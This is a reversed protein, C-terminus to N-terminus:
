QDILEVKLKGIKPALFNYFITLLAANVFGGVLASVVNSILSLISAGSIVLIISLILSLIGSVIACVIAFNMMDISDVVTFGNEESLELKIGRGKKGLLNYIYTGILIFVFTIVFVGFIMMIITMPQSIIMLVQYLQFALMDQGIFMLTQITTNLILPFILVLSLYTIIVQITAICALVTATEHTSIKVIKENELEFKMTKLKKTLLNYFLGGSFHKYIGIIFTAFLITSTVYLAVSMNSPSVLGIVITVALATILAFILEIGTTIITYSTLEISKLEKLSSMNVGLVM